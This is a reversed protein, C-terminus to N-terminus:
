RSCMTPALRGFPWLKPSTSEPNVVPSVAITPRAATTFESACATLMMGTALVAARCMLVRPLGITKESAPMLPTM